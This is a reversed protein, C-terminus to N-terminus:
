LDFYSLFLITKIERKFSDFNNIKRIRGDLKNWETPAAYIFSREFFTNSSGKSIPPVVLLFSDDALRTNVSKNKKKKYTLILIKYIIRQEVKLWHLNILVETIHDCRPTRTLIWAAQNQIKQLRAISCKPLNNNYM